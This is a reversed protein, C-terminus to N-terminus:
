YLVIFDVWVKKTKPREANRIATIKDLCPQITNKSVMHGLCEINSFGIFCKGPKVIVTTERLRGLLIGLVELHQEWILTFIIIDDEFNDVNQLNQLLGHMIRSWSAQATVLSFPLVTFQFRGLHTQFATHKKSNESLPIQWYGKWIFKYGALKSFIQKMNPM